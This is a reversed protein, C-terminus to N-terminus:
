SRPKFVHICPFTARRSVTSVGVTFQKRSTYYKKLGIRARGKISRAAIRALSAHLWVIAELRDFAAQEDSIYPQNIVSATAAGM